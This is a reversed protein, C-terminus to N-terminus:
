MDNYVEGDPSPRFQLTSAKQHCAEGLYYIVHQQQQQRIDFLFILIYEYQVNIILYMMKM